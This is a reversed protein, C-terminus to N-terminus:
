EKTKQSTSKAKEYAELRKIEKERAYRVSIVRLKLKKDKARLTFVVLKVLKTSVMKHATVTKLEYQEPTM